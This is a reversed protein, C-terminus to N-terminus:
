SHSVKMQTLVDILQNAKFVARSGSSSATTSTYPIGPVGGPPCPIHIPTKVDPLPSPHSEASYRKKRRRIQQKNLLGEAAQLREDIKMAQQRFFAPSPQDKLPHCLDKTHTSADKDRCSM